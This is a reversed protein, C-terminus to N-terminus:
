KVVAKLAELMGKMSAMGDALPYLEAKAYNLIPISRQNNVCEEASDYDLLAITHRNLSYYFELIKREERLRQVSAMSTEMLQLTVEPPLLGFADATDDIRYSFIENKGGEFRNKTKGNLKRM